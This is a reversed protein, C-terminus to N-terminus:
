EARLRTNNRDVLNIRFFGAWFPCYIEMRPTDGCPANFHDTGDLPRARTSHTTKSDLRLFYMASVMRCESEGGVNVAHCGM